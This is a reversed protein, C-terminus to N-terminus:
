DLGWDAGWEVLMRGAAVDVEKVVADVFPLLREIGAGDKVRLIDNAVGQMLEEVRGLSVGEGNQVELGVLDDWYYEDEEGQPLSERPAGFYIGRLAEAATRDDVGGLRAVYGDGHAKLELLPYSKWGEEADSDRNLYWSEMSGWSEPDDGFPHIRLWGRLGYADVIRGLVVM